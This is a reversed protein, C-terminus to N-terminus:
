CLYLNWCPRFSTFRKSETIKCVEHFQFIWKNWTLYFVQDKGPKEQTM